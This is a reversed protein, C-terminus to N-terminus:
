SPTCALHLAELLTAHCGRRSALLPTALRPQPQNYILPRAQQDTVHGGAEGVILDAACLDWECPSLSVMPYADSSGQAVELLKVVTSGRSYHALGPLQQRLRELWPRKADSHRTVIRLPAHPAPARLVLREVTGRAAPARRESVPGEPRVPGDPSVVRDLRTCFAGGGEVAWFLREIAPLAIVGLCPRGRFALAVSVGFDAAGRIFQSTGDLPDVIWVYDCGLRQSSDATEESLWGVGPLLAPLRAALLNNSELDAITVPGDPKHRLQLEAGVSSRARNPWYAMLIGSAECVASLVAELPVPVRIHSGALGADIESPM